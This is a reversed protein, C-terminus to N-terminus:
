NEILTCCAHLNVLIKSWDDKIFTYSHNRHITMEFSIHGEGELFSTIYQSTVTTIRYFQIQNPLAVYLLRIDFISPLFATHLIPGLM